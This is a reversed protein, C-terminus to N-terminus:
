GAASAVQIPALIPRVLAENDGLGSLPAQMLSTELDEYHNLLQQLLQVYEDLTRLNSLIFGVPNNIEHAVGAALQGVSEMKQAQVLQSELM